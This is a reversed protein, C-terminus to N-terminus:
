LQMERGLYIWFKGSLANELEAAKIEKRTCNKMGDEMMQKVTMEEQEKEWCFWPTKGPLCLSQHTDGPM